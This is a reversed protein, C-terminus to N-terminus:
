FNFFRRGLYVFFVATALVVAALALFMLITELVPRPAPAPPAKAPKGAAVPKPQARLAPQLPKAPRPPPSRWPTKDRTPDLCGPPAVLCTVDGFRVHAGATVRVGEGPVLPELDKGKRLIFTGNTSRADQLELDVPHLGHVIFVAHKASVTPHDLIVAATRPTAGIMGHFDLEIRTTRLENPSLVILSANQSMETLGLVKALKRPEPHPAREAQAPAAVPGPSRAEASAPKPTDQLRDRPSAQRAGPIDARPDSALEGPREPPLESATPALPDTDAHPGIHIVSAAVVARAEKAPPPLPVHAFDAGVSGAPLMCARVDGLELIQNPAWPALEVPCGGVFLPNAPARNEVSYVPHAGDDQVCSYAVHENSVTPHELVLNAVAPHQGITGALGLEFRQGRMAEPALVLLTARPFPEDLAVVRAPTPPTAPFVPTKDVGPATRGLELARLNLATPRFPKLQAEPQEDLAWPKALFDRLADAFATMSPFRDEARKAASRLVIRALSVPALHTPPLPLPEFLHMAMIQMAKRGQRMAAAFPHEWIMELLIFTLAYMDAAATVPRTSDAQEPAMYPLSVVPVLHTSRPSFAHRAAGWDLVKVTTDGNGHQVLFVNDPKLDRHIAGKDHMWQLAEAITIVLEVAIPITVTRGKANQRGILERLSCGQLLEMVHYPGFQPHEGLDYCRVMHPNNPISAMLQAEALARAVHAPDQRINPKLVKVAARQHTDAHVAEYVCGMGGEGVIGLIAWKGIREGFKPLRQSPDVTEDNAPVVQAIPASAVEPHTDASPAVEHTRRPLSAALKALAPLDVPEPRWRNTEPQTDPAGSVVALDFFARAVSDAERAM